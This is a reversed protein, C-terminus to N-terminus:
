YENVVVEPQQIALRASELARRADTVNHYTPSDLLLKGNRSKVRIRWKREFIKTIEVRGM